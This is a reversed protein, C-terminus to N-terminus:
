REKYNGINFTPANFTGSFLVSSDPGTNIFLEPGASVIDLDFDGGTLFLMNFTAPAGQLTGSVGNLQFGSSLVHTPVPSQPIVFSATTGGTLSFLVQQASAESPIVAALGLGLTVVFKQRASLSM